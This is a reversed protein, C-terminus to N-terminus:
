IDKVKQLLYDSQRKKVIRFGALNCMEEVEEPTYRSVNVSFVKTFKKKIKFAISYLLGYFLNKLSIEQELWFQVYCHGNKKLKRNFQKLAEVSLYAPIHGFTEICFVFDFKDKIPSLDVLNAEEFKITEGAKQAWKKALKITTPSIDVGTVNYGKKSFEIAYRAMPGMGCDLIKGGKPISPLAWSSIFKMDSKLQKLVKAMTSNTGHIVGVEDQFKIKDEWVDGWLKTKM